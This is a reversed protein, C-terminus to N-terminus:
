HNFVFERSNLAAWFIDQLAGQPSKPDQIMALLKTKEDATEAWIEARYRCDLLKALGGWTFTKFQTGPPADMVFEALASRPVKRAGIVNALVMARMGEGGEQKCARRIRMYGRTYYGDFADSRRNLLDSKCTALTFQGARATPAAALLGLVCLTGILSRQFTRRSRM